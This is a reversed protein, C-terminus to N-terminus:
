TIENVEKISKHVEAFLWDFFDEIAKIEAKTPADNTIEVELGQIIVDRLDNEREDRNASSALGTGPAADSKIRRLKDAVASRM